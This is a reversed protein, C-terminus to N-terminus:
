HVVSVRSHRVPTENGRLSKSSTRQYLLTLTMPYLEGACLGFPRLPTSISPIPKIEAMPKGDRLVVLTEGAEVRRLYTLLDQRIEEESVWTVIHNEVTSM